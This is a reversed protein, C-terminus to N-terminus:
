SSRVIKANGDSSTYIFGRGATPFYHIGTIRIFKAWTNGDIRAIPNTHKNLDYIELLTEQHPQIRRGIALQFGSPSLTCTISESSLDAQWLIVGIRGPILSIIHLQLKNTDQNPQRFYALKQNDETVSISRDGNWKIRSQIINQKNDGIRPTNSVFDPWYQMRGLNRECLTTQLGSQDELAPELGMTVLTICARRNRLPIITAIRNHVSGTNALAVTKDTRGIDWCLLETEYAILLSTDPSSFTAMFYQFQTHFIPDPYKWIYEITTNEKLKWLRITIKNEAIGILINEYKPHFQPRCLDVDTNLESRITHKGSDLIYITGPRISAATWRGNISIDVHKIGDPQYGMELNTPIKLNIIEAAMILKREENCRMRQIFQKHNHNRNNARNRLDNMESVVFSDSAVTITLQM